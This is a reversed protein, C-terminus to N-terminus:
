QDTLHSPHERKIIVIIKPGDAVFSAMAICSFSFCFELENNEVVCM